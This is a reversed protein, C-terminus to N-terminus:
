AGIGGYSVRGVNGDSPTLSLRPTRYVLLAQEARIARGALREVEEALMANALELRASKEREAKLAKAPGDRQALLTSVLDANCEAPAPADPRDGYQYPDGGTLAQAIAASRQGESLAQWAEYPDSAEAEHLHEAAAKLAAQDLRRRRRMALYRRLLRERSPSHRKEMSLPTDPSEVDAPTAMADLDALARRGIRLLALEGLGFETHYRRMHPSRRVERKRSALNRYIEGLNAVLAARVEVPGKGARAAADLAQALTSVSQGEIATAKFGRWLKARRRIRRTTAARQSASREGEANGDVPEAGATEVTEPKM